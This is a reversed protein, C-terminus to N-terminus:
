SALMGCIEIVEEKTLNRPRKKLFKEPINGIQKKEYKKSDRIANLVTKNKHSFLARIIDEETRDIERGTKELVVLVSDVRPPPSFLRRSITRIIKIDFFLQSTVSLRGYSGKGPKAIMKEGFEKQIIFVGREFDFDRLRFIIRSTIYYPINGAVVDFCPLEIELFDGEIIEANKGSFRKRLIEAFKPDKEVAYVIKPNRELLKETLRGDGAGIELVRKGEVNAIEAEKKLINGDRLFHQGLKKKM